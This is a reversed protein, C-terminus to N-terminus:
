SQLQQLPPITTDRYYLASVYAGYNCRALHIDFDSENLVSQVYKRTGEVLPSPKEICRQILPARIQEPLSEWKLDPAFGLCLNRLMEDKYYTGLAPMRNVKSREGHCKFAHPIRMDRDLASKLLNESLSADNHNYDFVSEAVTHLVIEAISDFWTLM